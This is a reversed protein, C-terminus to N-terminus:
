ETQLQHLHDIIRQIAEKATSVTSTGAMADLETTFIEVDDATLAPMTQYTEEAAEPDGCLLHSAGLYHLLYPLFDTELAPDDRVRELDPIAESCKGAYYRSQGRLFYLTSVQESGNDILSTYDEAAKEYNGDDSYLQARNLYAGELGLGSENVIKIANSYEEIASTIDADSESVYNPDYLLGLELYGEALLAPNSEIWKQTKATDLADYLSNQAAATEGQNFLIEASIIRALFAAEEQGEKVPLATPTQNLKEWNIATLYLSIQDNSRNGWVMLDADHDAGAKEIKDKLQIPKNYRCIQFKGESQLDMINALDNEFQPETSFNTIVVRFDKADSLCHFGTIEELISPFNVTGQGLTVLAFISLVTMETRRRPLSMVFGNKATSNFTDLLSINGQKKSKTRTIAPWRWGWLVAVSVVLTLTSIFAPYPLSSKGLLALLYPLITSVYGGIEAITRFLHISDKEKGNTSM